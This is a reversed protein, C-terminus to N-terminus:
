NDSDPEYEVGGLPLFIRCDTGQNEGSIITFRGGHEQAIRNVISLGLGSGDEKTTFFPMCVKDLHAQPIGPGNDKVSIVAVDGLQLDTERSETVTIIGGHGTAECGNIILNVVAEKIRDADMRVPPMNLLPNYHLETEYERIRYELLALVSHIVKGLNYRELRLKPPRAFELFNQVIKDIRTIEEAIVRLDENQIDSLDLTRSLSFMRMKISTFPNRITHAVGAALEGVMAMREAQILHKRSKALEDSTEDFDRIMNHLSQRLSDVEDHMSQQESSGTKIELCRIPLLIQRYLIFLFITALGAFAAVGTFSSLRLNRSRRNGTEEAKQIKVWQQQSFTQCLNLLTFFVDRQKEHPPSISKPTFTDSYNEIAKDKEKLYELYKQRIQEFTKRQEATLEFTGAKELNQAFIQRYEGLSKLWKANGDVFYYTVFGKQNALALEMDQTTKYLVMEQDILTCLLEDNQSTYWLMSIVGSLVIVAM